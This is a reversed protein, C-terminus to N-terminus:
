VARLIRRGDPGPLTLGLIVLDFTEAHIRFFADEGTTSVDVGYHEAELGERLAQAVKAEDEVVLIRVLDAHINRRIATLSWRLSSPRLAGGQRRPQIRGSSKTLIRTHRQRPRAVSSSPPRRSARRAAACALRRDAVAFSTCCRASTTKATRAAYKWATAASAASAIWSSSMRISRAYTACRSRWSARPITGWLS